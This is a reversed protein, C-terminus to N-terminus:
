IGVGALMRTNQGINFKSDGNSKATVSGVIGKPANINVNIESESKSAKSALLRNAIDQTQSSATMRNTLDQTPSSSVITKQIGNTLDQKPSSSVITKQIDIAEQHSVKSFLSKFARETSEELKNNLDILPRFIKILGSAVKIIQIIANSISVFSDAIKQIDEATITDLFENFRETISILQPELRFFLDILKNQIKIGIRDIRKSFTALRINAQEQAANTGKLQSEFKSLFKVNALIALGVKAHEEGFIKQAFKARETSTKLSDMKRKVIEFSKELGLEKFDIGARQLKGLIANLATGARSGKIGGKATTQIAANLQLFSLGAARAAPGAILVAQATDGIESSGFKAGAALINVFKAASKSSKGFINLSDATVQAATSLEIGSAAKLLLVQETMDALAETNKLLEPKASGVLKFAELIKPSATAFLVSLKKGRESLQDLDKGTAGTIASLDALADQFSTGATIVRKMAANLVLVVGTLVALGATLKLGKNKVGGLENGFKTSSGSAKGFKKKLKGMRKNMKKVSRNVKESMRTFRDNAVFNYTINFAM